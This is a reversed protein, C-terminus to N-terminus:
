INKGSIRKPYAASSKESDKWARMISTFPCRHIPTPKGIFRELRRRM